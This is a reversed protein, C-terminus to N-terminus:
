RANHYFLSFHSFTTFLGTNPKTHNKCILFRLCFATIATTQINSSKEEKLEHQSALRWPASILLHSREFIVLDQARSEHIPNSNKCFLSMTNSWGKGWRCLLSQGPVSERMAKLKFKEPEVPTLFVNSNNSALYSLTIQWHSYLCHCLVALTMCNTLPLSNWDM